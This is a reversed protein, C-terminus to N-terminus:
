IVPKRRSAYYGVVGQSSALKGCAWWAFRYPGRGPFGKGTSVTRFNACAWRASARKALWRRAVAKATACSQREADAWHAEVGVRVLHGASNTVSILGCWRHHDVTNPGASSLAGPAILLAGIICAAVLRGILM